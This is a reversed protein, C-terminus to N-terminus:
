EFMHKAPRDTTYSYIAFVMATAITVGVVCALALVSSKVVRLKRQEATEMTTSM